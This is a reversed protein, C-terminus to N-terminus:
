ARKKETAAGKQALTRRENWALLAVLGVVLMAMLLAPTYLCLGHLPKPLSQVCPAAWQEEFFTFLDFPDGSAPMM